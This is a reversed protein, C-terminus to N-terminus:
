IFINKIQKIDIPIKIQYVNSKTSINITKDVFIVDYEENMKEVNNIITINDTFDLVVEKLLM